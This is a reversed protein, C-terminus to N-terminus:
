VFMERILRDPDYENMGSEPWIEGICIKNEKTMWIFMIRNFPYNDIILSERVMPFSIEDIPDLIICLSTETKTYKRPIKNNLYDILDKTNRENPNKGFRKLQFAPGKKEPNEIHGPVIAVDITDDEDIQKKLIDHLKDIKVLNFGELDDNAYKDKIKFAMCCENDWQLECFRKLIIAMLLEYDKSNPGRNYSKLFARITKEDLFIAKMTEM